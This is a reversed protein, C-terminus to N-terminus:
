RACAAAAPALTRAMALSLEGTTFPKQLVRFGRSRCNEAAPDSAAYASMYLVARCRGRIEEICDMEQDVLDTIVLDFPRCERTCLRLAERATDVVTAAHEWRALASRLVGSVTTNREVVLVNLHASTPSPM